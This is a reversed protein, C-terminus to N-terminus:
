WEKFKLMDARNFPLFVHWKREIAQFDKSKMHPIIFRAGARSKLLSKETRKDIRRVRIFKRALEYLAGVQKSLKEKKALKNLLSWDRAYRFLELSALITRFDRTKISEILAEEISLKKGHIVHRYPEVLKIRSYKNITEILGPNGEEFGKLMSIRYMRTGRAGRSTTVYGEKRLEYIYNIATKRKINLIKCISNITQLGEIEKVIKEKRM